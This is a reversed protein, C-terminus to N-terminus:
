RETMYGNCGVNVFSVHDMKEQLIGLWHSSVLGNTLSDGFSIIIPKKDGNGM